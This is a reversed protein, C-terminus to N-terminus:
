ETEEVYIKLDDIWMTSAAIGGAGFNIELQAGTELEMIESYQHEEWETNQVFINESPGTEINTNIYIAGGNDTKGQFSISIKKSELYPGIKFYLHPYICGGSVKLSREGSGIPADESTGGAYGEYGDLDTAEEYSTFYLIEESVSEGASEIPEKECATLALM